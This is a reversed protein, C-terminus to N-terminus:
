NLAFAQTEYLRSYVGQKNLLERHTGEEVLKGKNFVLIRDVKRITSLRHAIVIATCDKLLNELAADILKETESDINSTAEDLVLIDPRRVVGRAFSLLQKQGVSLRKGEELVPEDE